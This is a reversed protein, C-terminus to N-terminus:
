RNVRSAIWNNGDLRRGQFGREALFAGVPDHRQAAGSWREYIVIEVRELLRTAGRLAALEAGELDMKLMRVRGPGSVLDDLTATEVEIERVSTRSGGGARPASLDIRAQGFKGPEVRATVRLGAVDSVAQALVTVNDLENLKVHTELRAATDPMMEIAVVRGGSSVLRSALVTYVGINAGADVFVDGPRLHARLANCIARERWPLVHWLDDCRARLQFRGIGRVEVRADRLLIPDQWSFPERLAILPAALASGALNARDRWDVGRVQWLIMPWRGVRRTYALTRHISLRAPQPLFRRAAFRLYDSLM